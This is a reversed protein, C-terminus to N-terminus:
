LMHNSPLFCLSKYYQLELNEDRLVTINEEEIWEKIEKPLNDVDENPNFILTSIRKGKGKEKNYLDAKKVLRIGHNEYDPGAKDQGAGYRESNPIIM